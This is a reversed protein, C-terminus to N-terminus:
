APIRGADADATGDTAIGTIIQGADVNAVLENLIKLNIEDLM